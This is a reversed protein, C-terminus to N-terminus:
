KRPDRHRDPHGKPLGDDTWHPEGFGDWSVHYGGGNTGKGPFYMTAHGDVIDVKGAHNWGRPVLGARYIDGATIRSKQKKKCDPCYNPINDWYKKYRIQNHCSACQKTHWENCAKCYDPVKDWDVNYRIEGGCGKCSKTRWKAEDAAKKKASCDPCLNFRKGPPSWILKGCGFLGTGPCTSASWGQSRKTECRKCYTPVNSWGVSYRITNYCGMQGCTKELQINRCDKCFRPTTGYAKYIIETRCRECRTSWLNPNTGTGNCARCDVWKGPKDLWKRGRGECSRCSVSGM